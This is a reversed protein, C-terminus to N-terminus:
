IKGFFDYWATIIRSRNQAIYRAIKNLDNQPIQSKNHVLEVGGPRIWFKTANETQKGKCVHVHPPENNENAWFFFSYGLFDLLVKPM